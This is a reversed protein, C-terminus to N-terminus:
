LAEAYLDAIFADERDRLVRERVEPWVKQMGEFSPLKKKGIKYQYTSFVEPSVAEFEAMLEKTPMLKKHAWGPQKLVILANRAERMQLNNLIEQLVRKKAPPIIIREGTLHDEPGERILKKRIHSATSLIEKARNLPHLKRYKGGKRGTFQAQIRAYIRQEETLNRMHEDAESQLGEDLYEKYTNAAVSFEGGARGMNEWFQRVSHSGRAPDKSFRRVIPMDTYPIDARDTNLAQNTTAFFSRSWGAGVKRMVHDTEAPSVGLAKGVMISFESNYSTYQLQPAYQLLHDSVIDRGTFLDKNTALEYFLNTITPSGPLAFTDWLDSIFGEMATPDGKYAHDLSREFLNSVVALEFPKPIRYWVGDPGKVFWHTARM